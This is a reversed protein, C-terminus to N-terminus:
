PIKESRLSARRAAAKAGLIAMFIYSIILASDHIFENINNEFNTQPDAFHYPHFLSRYLSYGFTATALFLGVIIPRKKMKFGAPYAIFTACIFTGIIHMIYVLTMISSKIRVPPIFQSIIGIVFYMLYLMLYYAIPSALAMLFLFVWKKSGPPIHIQYSWVNKNM